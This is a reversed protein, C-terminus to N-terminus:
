SVTNTIAGTVTGSPSVLAHTSTVTISKVYDEVATAIKDALDEIAQDQNETKTKQDDFAIKIDNKLKLRNLSM